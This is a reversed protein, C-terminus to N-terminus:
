NLISTVTARGIWLEVVKDFRFLEVVFVRVETVFEDSRQWSLYELRVILIFSDM